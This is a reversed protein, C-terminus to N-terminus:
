IMYLKRGYSMICSMHYNDANSINNSHWHISVRPNYRIESSSFVCIPNFGRRVTFAGVKECEVWACVSKDAGEKIKRAVNPRNCLKCGVLELNYESPNYYTVTKKIDDIVQWHMYHKGKALHFRVRFM